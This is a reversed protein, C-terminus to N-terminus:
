FIFHFFFPSLVISSLFDHFSPYFPYHPSKEAEKNSNKFNLWSWHPPLAGKRETRRLCATESNWAGLAVYYYGTESVYIGWVFCFAGALLPHKVWFM